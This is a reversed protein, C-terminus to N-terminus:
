EYCEPFLAMKLLETDFVVLFQNTPTQSQVAQMDARKWSTSQKRLVSFKGQVMGPTDLM